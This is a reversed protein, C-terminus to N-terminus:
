LDRNIIGDVTEREVLQAIVPTVVFLVSYVLHLSTVYHYSLSEIINYLHILM